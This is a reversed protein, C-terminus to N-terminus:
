QVSRLTPLEPAPTDGPALGLRDEEAAIAADLTRLAAGVALEAPRAFGVAADYDGILRLLREREIRLRELFAADSTDEPDLGYEDLENM